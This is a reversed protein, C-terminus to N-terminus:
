SDVIDKGMISLVTIRLSEGDEFLQLIEAGQSDFEGDDGRSLSVDEKTEGEDTLLSLFGTSSDVDCLTFVAKSTVPVDIGHFGATLNLTDQYKKGTHIHTGVLHLKKNGNATAQPKHNLETIRCPMDQIMAFGPKKLADPQVKTM